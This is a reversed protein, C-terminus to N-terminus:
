LHLVEKVFPITLKRKKQLSAEDLRDLLYFLENTDRSARSLIYRAVEGSLDLGRAAARMTMAVQKDADSLSEVHYRVCGLVRSRLDALVIPLSPPSTHSSILLNHGADKLNNYLHFLSKEWEKVGCIQDIGDLCIFQSGELGDCIDEAAFGLMDRLPLYQVSQKNRWVDHCVAQLLHTLGAGPAGWILIAKDGNGDGEGGVFQQLAGITQVNPEAAAYFNDFTCDDNLTVGLSLQVPESNM